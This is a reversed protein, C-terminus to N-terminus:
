LLGKLVPFPPITGNLIGILVYITLVVLIVVAIKNWPEPLTIGVAKEGFTLTRGTTNDM